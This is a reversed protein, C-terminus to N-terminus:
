AVRSSKKSDSEAAAKILNQEIMKLYVAYRPATAQVVLKKALDDYSFGSERILGGFAEELFSSMLTATGDLAVLVQENDKLAPALIHDRFEEGSYPGHKAYRGGPVTTFDRAINIEKVTMEGGPPMIDLSGM